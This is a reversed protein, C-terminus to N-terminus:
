SMKGAVIDVKCTEIIVHSDRRAQPNGLGMGRM